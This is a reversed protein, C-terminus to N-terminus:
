LWPHRGTLRRQCRGPLALRHRIGNL